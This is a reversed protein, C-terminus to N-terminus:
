RPKHLLPMKELIDHTLAEHRHRLIHERIMKVNEHFKERGGDTDMPFSLYKTRLEKACQSEIKFNGCEHCTISIVGNEEQYDKASKHCLPCFGTM